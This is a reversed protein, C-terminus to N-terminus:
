RVEGDLRVALVNAPFQLDGVGLDVEGVVEFHFEPFGCEDQIRSDFVPEVLCARNRVSRKKRGTRVSEANM